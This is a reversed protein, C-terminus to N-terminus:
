SGPAARRFRSIGRESTEDCVLSCCRRRRRVELIGLLCLLSAADLAGGGGSSPAQVNGTGTLNVTYITGGSGVSLTGARTGPATPAFKVQIVCGTGAALVTGCDNTQTFDGRPQLSNFTFAAAGTNEVNVPQAAGTTGVSQPAFNLTSPTVSLSLTEPELLLSEMTLGGDPSGIAIIAGNDNIANAQILVLPAVSTAPDISDNLDLGPAGAKPWLTAHGANNFGVIQSANNIGLAQGSGLATVAPAGSGVSWVVAMVSGLDPTGNTGAIEGQNNIANAVTYTTSDAQSLTPLMTTTGGSWLVAQNPVGNPVPSALYGVVDGNGNISTAYSHLPSSPDLSSMTGSSFLFATLDTPDLAGSAANSVGAIQGSLNIAYAISTAGNM